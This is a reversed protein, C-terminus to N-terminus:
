RVGAPSISLCELVVPLDGAAHIDRQRGKDRVAQHVPGHSADAHHASAASRRVQGFGQNDFAFNASSLTLVISSLFLKVTYNRTVVNDTLSVM